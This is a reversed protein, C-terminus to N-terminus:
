KSKGRIQIQEIAAIQAQSYSIRSLPKPKSPDM